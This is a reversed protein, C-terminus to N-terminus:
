RPVSMAAVIDQRYKERRTHVKATPILNDLDRACGVSVHYVIPYLCVIVHGPAM